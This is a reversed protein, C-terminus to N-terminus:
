GSKTRGTQCVYRICQWGSGTRRFACIGQGSKSRHLQKPPTHVQQFNSDFVDVTGNSFNTAYLFTNGEANTGIALGKYVAGDQSHDAAIVTSTLSVMPSWGSITGDETAFIFRSPATVGGSTINFGTTGNFVDGTPTADPPTAITVTLRLNGAGDYVTTLGTGNDSIWFPSTPGFAIGWPNVLNPDINAAPVFGDSVLNTQTFENHGQGDPDRNAPAFIGDGDDTQVLADEEALLHLRLNKPNASMAVEWTKQESQGSATM